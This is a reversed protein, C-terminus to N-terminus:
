RACVGSASVAGTGNSSVETLNIIRNYEIWVAEEIAHRFERTIPFCIDQYVPQERPWRKSDLAIGCKNCFAATVYNRTMCQPCKDAIKRAPMAIFDREPGRLLKIDTLVLENELVVTAYGLLIDNFPDPQSLKIRVETIHM